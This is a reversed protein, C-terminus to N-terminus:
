QTSATGCGAASPEPVAGFKVSMGFMISDASLSTRVATGAVVGSPSVFTGQVSSEFAHMYAMTLTLDRSLDWSAGAFAWHRNITVAPINVFAQSDPVPNQNWCYGVRVATCDTPRYQTGLAISFVSRWGPGRLSGDANFGEDGFGRTNAYDYYRADAAFVWRDLGTYAAGVSAILPLDLRFQLDRPNGLEDHSNFRLSEFWQPSRLSAGVGWADEHYYVGVTFGGGWAPRGHTGTPYTAFGDGNADDPAGFVGPDLKLNAMDISAGFAVSLNPTVQYSAAPTIQLAQYESVVPGFGVGAPRPATLVPNTLSGPYNIGFGAASFVGLGVAIPSDPPLYALAITPLAYPGGDNSSVGAMGASPVGPGFAGSVVSSALRSRVFLLEAGADLESQGLGSLTAPNWYVAGAADLPAAVSAGAMSRNVPGAGQVVAGVQARASVAAFLVTLLAIAPRVARALM